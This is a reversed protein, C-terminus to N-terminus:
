EGYTRMEAVLKLTGVMELVARWITSREISISMMKPTIQERVVFVRWSITKQNAGMLTKAVRAIQMTRRARVGFLCDAVQTKVLKVLPEPQPVAKEKKSEKRETAHTM